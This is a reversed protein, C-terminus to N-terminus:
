SWEDVEDRGAALLLDEAKAAFPIPISDARSDFVTRRWDIYTSIAKPQM